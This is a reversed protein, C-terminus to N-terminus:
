LRVFERTPNTTIAFRVIERTKHYLIFYVYLRQNTAFAQYKTTDLGQWDIAARCIGLMPSAANQKEWGGLKQPLGKHFRVKDGDKWRNKSGRDTNLTYLGPLVVLETTPRPM